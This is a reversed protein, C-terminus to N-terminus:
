LVPSRRAPKPDPMLKTYVENMESIETLDNVYVTVPVIDSM